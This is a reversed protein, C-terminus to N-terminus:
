RYCEFVYLWDRRDRAELAKQCDEKETFFQNDLREDPSYFFTGGAGVFWLFGKGVPAKQYTQADVLFDSFLTYRFSTELKRAVIGKMAEFVTDM